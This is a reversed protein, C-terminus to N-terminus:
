PRVFYADLTHRYDPLERRAEFEAQAIEFLMAMGLQGLGDANPVGAMKLQLTSLLVLSSMRERTIQVCAPHTRLAMSIELLAPRHLIADLYAKIGLRILSSGPTKRAMAQYTEARVEESLKRLVGILFDDFEPFTTNFRATSRGAVAAVNRPNLKASPTGSALLRLGAGIFEAHLDAAPPKRSISSKAAMDPKATTNWPAMVGNQVTARYGCLQLISAEAKGFSTYLAGKHPLWHAPDGTKSTKL